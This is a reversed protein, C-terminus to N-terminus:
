FDRALPHELGGLRKIAEQTLGPSQRAKSVRPNYWDVLSAIGALLVEYRHSQYFALAKSVLKHL